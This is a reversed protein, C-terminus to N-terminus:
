KVGKESARQRKTLEFPRRTETPYKLHALGAHHDEIRREDVLNEHFLESVEVVVLEALNEIRFGIREELPVRKKGAAVCPHLIATLYCRGEGRVCHACHIGDHLENALLHVHLNDAVYLPWEFCTLQRQSVSGVNNCVADEINLSVAERAVAVDSVHRLAEGGWRQPGDEEHNQDLNKGSKACFEWYFEDVDINLREEEVEELARHPAALLVAELQVIEEVVDDRQSLPLPQRVLVDSTV